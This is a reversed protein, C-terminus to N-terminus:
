QQMNYRCVTWKLQRNTGKNTNKENEKKHSIELGISQEAVVKFFVAQAPLPPASAAQALIAGRLM